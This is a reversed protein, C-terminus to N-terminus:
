NLPCNNGYIFDRGRNHLITTPNQQLVKTEQHSAVRKSTSVSCDGLYKKRGKWSFQYFHPNSTGGM